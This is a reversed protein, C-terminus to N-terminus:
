KLTVKDKTVFRLVLNLCTIIAIQEEAGTVFGWQSQALLAGIAVINTWFTKSHYIKKVM